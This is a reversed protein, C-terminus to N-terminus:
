PSSLVRTQHMRRRYRDADYACGRHLVSRNDWILCDGVRWRHRYIWGAEETALGLLEDLLAHAETDAWGEISRAHSGVYFSQEGNAPNTLVLSQQVPPLSAAHAPTVAGPGVKSRSFVYDHTASLGAIKSQMAPSLRQHARRTSAFEIEGGEDSV